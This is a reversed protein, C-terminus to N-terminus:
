SKSLILSRTTMERIEEEVERFILSSKLKAVESSSAISIAAACYCYCDRTVKSSTHDEYRSWYSDHNTACLNGPGSKALGGLTISDKVKSLRDLAM